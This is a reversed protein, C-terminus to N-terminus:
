SRSAESARSALRTAIAFPSTGRECSTEPEPSPQRAARLAGDERGPGPRHELIQHRRQHHLLWAVAQKVLGILTYHLLLDAVAGTVLQGHPM